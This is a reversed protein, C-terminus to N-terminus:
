ANGEFGVKRLHLRRCDHTKSKAVTWARINLLGEKM